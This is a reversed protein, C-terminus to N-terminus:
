AFAKWMNLEHVLGISEIEKVYKPWKQGDVGSGAKSVKVRAIADSNINRGESMTTNNKNRYFKEPPQENFICVVNCPIGCEQHNPKLGGKGRREKWM